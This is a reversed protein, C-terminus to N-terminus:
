ALVMLFVHSNVWSGDWFMPFVIELGDLLPGFKVWFGGGFFGWVGVWGGFCWEAWSLGGGGGGFFFFLLFGDDFKM